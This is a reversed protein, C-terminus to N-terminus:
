RLSNRHSEHFTLLDALRTNLVDITESKLVTKYNGPSVQRVHSHINESEPRIDNKDAIRNRRWWRLRLDLVKNMDALWARKRFIVDEYRYIRWEPGVAAVYNRYNQAVRDARESQVFADVDTLESNTRAALLMERASGQKPIYHSYRDSFYLSVLMDRPDRILLIKQRGQLVEPPLYHPIFRFGTFIYGDRRHLPEFIERPLESEPIGQMFADSSINISPVSAMQAAQTIMKDLL